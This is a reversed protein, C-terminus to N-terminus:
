ELNRCAVLAPFHQIMDKLMFGLYQPGGGGTGSPQKEKGITKAYEDASNTRNSAVQLHVKLFSKSHYGHFYDDGEMLAIIVEKLYNPATEHLLFSAGTRANNMSKRRQNEVEITNQLDELFIEIAKRDLQEANDPLIQKEEAKRRAEELNKTLQTVAGSFDAKTLLSIAKVENKCFSHLRGVAKHALSDVNHVFWLPHTPPVQRLVSSPKGLIIEDTVRVIRQSSHRYHHCYTDAPFLRINLLNAKGFAIQVLRYSISQFGSAPTLVDRFRYFERPHFTEGKNNGDQKLFGIISPLVTAASYRIRQAATNAPIWFEENDRCTELVAQDDSVKCLAQFTKGIVTFDFIMQKFVLEFLQHTIIFIREDPVITGPKQCRLLEDLGIYRNYDLNFRAPKNPDAEINPNIADKDTLLPHEKRQAEDISFNWWNSDIGDM